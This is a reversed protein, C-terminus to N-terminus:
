KKGKIRKVIWDLPGKGPKWRWKPLKIKVQDEFQDTWDNEKTKIEKKDKM